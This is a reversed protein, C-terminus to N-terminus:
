YRRNWPVWTNSTVKSCLVWACINRDQEACINIKLLRFRDNEKGKETQAAIWLEGQWGTRYYTVEAIGFEVWAYLTPGATGTSHRVIIQCVPFLLCFYVFIHSHFSSSLLTDAIFYIASCKYEHCNHVLCRKLHVM